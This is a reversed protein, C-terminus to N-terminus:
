TRWPRNGLFQWHSSIHIIYNPFARHLLRRPINRMRHLQEMCRKFAFPDGLKQSFCPPLLGISLWSCISNASCCGVHWHRPKCFYCSLKQEVGVITSRKPWLNWINVYRSPLISQLFFIHNCCRQVWDCTWLSCRRLRRWHSWFGFGVEGAGETLSSYFRWPFFGDHNM